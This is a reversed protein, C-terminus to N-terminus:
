GVRHCNRCRAEYSENGGVLVVPADKTAPQGNILRQTCTADVQGRGEAACLQCVATLKDVQDAIALLVPMSGFPDGKFDRDLGALIVRVGLKALERCIHPLVNNLFQAEDIAVIDTDPELSDLIKGPHTIVQVDEEIQGNHSAVRSVGYRNDIEPKFIQIHFGAIRARRIRRLLEETKGCFMPGCIVEITGIM